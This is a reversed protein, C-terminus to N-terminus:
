WRQTLKSIEKEYVEFTGPPLRDTVNFGYTNLFSQGIENDVRVVTDVSKVGRQELRELTETLLNFGVYLRRLSPEVIIDSIEGHDSGEQFHSFAYGARTGLLEAVLIICNRDQLNSIWEQWSDCQPREPHLHIEPTNVAVQRAWRIDERRMPRLTIVSTEVRM